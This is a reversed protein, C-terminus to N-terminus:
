ELAFEIRRNMRRGIETANDAIPEGAGRGDVRLREAGIGAAVLYDVVARARMLSLELNWDEDGRADTHGTVVIRADPCDFAFEVLRDLLGFASSRLEASAQAFEIRVGSVRRFAQGCLADLTQSVAIVTVDDRVIVTGPLVARLAALSARFADPRTSVGQFTMITPSLSTHGSELTALVGLAALTAAEWYDPAQSPLEALSDPNPLSAFYAKAVATLVDRHRDSAVDGALELGSRTVEAELLPAGTAAGASASARGPVLIAAAITITLAVLAPLTPRDTM